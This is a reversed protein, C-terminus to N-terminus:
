RSTRSTSLLARRGTGSAPRPRRQRVDPTCLLHLCAKAWTRRAASLRAKMKTRGGELGTASGARARRRSATAPRPASPLAGVIRGPCGSCWQLSPRRSGRFARAVMVVFWAIAGAGVDADILALLGRRPVAALLASAGLRRQAEPHVRSSSGRPPSSTTPACSWRRRCANQLRDRGDAVLGGSRSPQRAGGEADAASRGREQLEHEQLFVFTDPRDYWAVWPMVRRWRRRRAPSTRDTRSGGV